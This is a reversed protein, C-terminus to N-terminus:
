SKYAHLAQLHLLVTVYETRAETFTTQASRRDWKDKTEDLSDITAQTMVIELTRKRLSWLTNLTELDSSSVTPLPYDMCLPVCRGM